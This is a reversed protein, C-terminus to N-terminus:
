WEKSIGPCSNKKMVTRMEVFCGCVRCIGSILNDCERCFALREDYLRSSVKLDEDLNEIYRHM